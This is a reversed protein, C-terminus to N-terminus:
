LFQYIDTSFLLYSNYSQTPKSIEFEVRVIFLQQLVPTSLKPSSSYAARIPIALSQLHDESWQQLSGTM